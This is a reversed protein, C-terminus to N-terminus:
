CGPHCPGCTRSANKSSLLRAILSHPLLPFLQGPLQGRTSSVTGCRCVVEWAEFVTLTALTLPYALQLAAARPLLVLHESTPGPSGQGRVPRWRGGLGRGGSAQVRVAGPLGVALM